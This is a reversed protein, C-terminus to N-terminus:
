GPFKLCIEDFDDISIMKWLIYFDIHLIKMKSFNKQTPKLVHIRYHKRKLKFKMKTEVYLKTYLWINLSFCHSIFAFFQIQLFFFFCFYYYFFKHKWEFNYHVLPSVHPSRMRLSYWWNGGIKEVIEGWLWLLQAVLVAVVDLILKPARSLGLSAMSSTFCSLIWDFIMM